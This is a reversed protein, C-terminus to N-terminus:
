SHYNKWCSRYRSIKWFRELNERCREVDIRKVVFIKFELHYPSSSSSILFRKIRTELLNNAISDLRISTFRFNRRRENRRAWTCWQLSARVVYARDIYLPSDLDEAAEWRVRFKSRTAQRHSSCWWGVDSGSEGDGGNLWTEKEGIWTSISHDRHFTSNIQIKSKWSPFRKKKESYKSIQIIKLNAPFIRQYYLLYIFNYTTYLFITNSQCTHSKKKILLM